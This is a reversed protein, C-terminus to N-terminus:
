GGELLTGLSWPPDQGVDLWRPCWETELRLHLSLDEGQTGTELIQHDWAHCWGSPNDSDDAGGFVRWNGADSRVGAVCYQPCAWHVLLINSYQTHTHTHTHTHCHSTKKGGTLLFFYLGNEEWSCSGYNNCRM